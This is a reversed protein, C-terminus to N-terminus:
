FYKLYLFIVLRKIHICTKKYYGTKSIYQSFNELFYIVMYMLNYIKNEKNLQIIWKSHKFFNINFNDYNM